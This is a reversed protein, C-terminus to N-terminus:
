NLLTPSVNLREHSHYRVAQDNDDQTLLALSEEWGAFFFQPSAELVQSLDLLRRAGMRMLGKEFRDLQSASIGLRLALQAQTMKRFLRTMRVRKGIHKDIFTPQEIM